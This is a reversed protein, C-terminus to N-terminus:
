IIVCSVADHTLVPDFTSLEDYIDRRLIGAGEYYSYNMMDLVSLLFVKDTIVTSVDKGDPDFIRNTNVAYFFLVLVAMFDALFGHLFGNHIM